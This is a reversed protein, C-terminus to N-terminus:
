SKFMNSALKSSKTYTKAEIVWVKTRGVKTPRMTKIVKQSGINEVKSVAKGNKTSYTWMTKNKKM